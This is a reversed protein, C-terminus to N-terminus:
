YDAWRRAEASLLAPDRQLLESARDRRGVWLENPRESDWALSAKAAAIEYRLCNKRGAAMQSVTLCGSAGGRFRLLVWGYGETDIPGAVTEGSGGLKGAFTEVPGRPRQRVPHFTRLDACVAEVVLGTIWQVLDLWHTGIDAVARLPGSESSLVRWNFDT